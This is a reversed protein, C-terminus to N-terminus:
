ELPKIKAEIYTREEASLAFTAYLEEDTWTKTYDGMDPVWAFRDSTIDQTTVRLGLMFRFFKTRMYSLFNRAEDETNFASVVVYTFTCVAGPKLLFYHAFIRRSPLEAGGGAEVTAKGVCIKWKNLLNKKDRVDSPKAHQLVGKYTKYSAYCPVGEGEPVWSNYNTPLGFADLQLPHNEPLMTHTQCKELISKANIDVLFINEYTNLYEIREKGSDDVYTCPGSYDKEWLFYQVGATIGGLTPFITDSDAYHRIRKMRKDKLMNQRFKALGMGGTMWRSPIIFTLYDPTLNEIIEEIFLNYLPTGQRANTTADPNATTKQYPPNGVVVLKDFKVTIGETLISSLTSMDKNLIGGKHVGYLRKVINNLKKDDGFFMINEPNVHKIHVLAEVFEPAFLVLYLANDPLPEIMAHCITDPVINGQWPEYFGRVEAILRERLEVRGSETYASTVVLDTEPRKPAIPATPLLVVPEPLIIEPVEEVTFTLQTEAPKEVDSVFLDVLKKVWKFM